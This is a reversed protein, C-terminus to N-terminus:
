LSQLVNVDSVSGDTEITFQVIVRGQIEKEKAEEPYKLNQQLFSVLAVVGGPYEPAIEPNRMPEDQASANVSGAMLLVITTAVAAFIGNFSRNIVNNKKM